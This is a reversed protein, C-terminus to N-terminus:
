VRKLKEYYQTKIYLVISLIALFMYTSKGDEFPADALGQFVFSIQAGMCGILINKIFENNKEFYWIMQWNIKLFYFYMMLFLSTGVVGRTALLDLVTNHAHTGKPLDITPSLKEYYQTDLRKNEKLGKGLIPNELWMQFHAKWIYLRQNNTSYNFDTLSELRHRVSPIGICLSGIILGFILAYKLNKFYILTIALSSIITAIWANRSYTLGITIPILLTTIILLYDKKREKKFEALSLTYFM